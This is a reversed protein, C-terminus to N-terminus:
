SAELREPIRGHCLRKPDADGAEAGNTGRDHADQSALVISERLPAAAGHADSGNRGPVLGTIAAEVEGAIGPEVVGHLQRAGGFNIAYDLEHAARIPWGSGCDLRRERGALV